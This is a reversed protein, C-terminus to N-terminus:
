RRGRVSVRVVWVMLLLAALSTAVGFLARAASVVGAQECLVGLVWVGVVVLAALRLM